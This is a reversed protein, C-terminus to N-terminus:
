PTNELISLTVDLASATDCRVQIADGKADDTAHTNSVVVKGSIVELASGVPVQAGKILYIDESGLSGDEPGVTSAQTAILVDATISSGSTNTLLLGIVVTDCNSPVVYLDSTGDNTNPLATNPVDGMTLRKFETAM